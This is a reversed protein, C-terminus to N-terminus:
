FQSKMPYSHFNGEGMLSHVTPLDSWQTYLFNHVSKSFADEYYFGLM